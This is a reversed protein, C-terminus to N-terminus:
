RGKVEMLWASLRADLRTIFYSGGMVENVRDSLNFQEVLVNPVAVWGFTGGTNIVRTAVGELQFPQDNNTFVRFKAAITLNGAAAYEGCIMVVGPEVFRAQGKGLLNQAATFDHVYSNLMEETFRLAQVDGPGLRKAREIQAAFERSAVPSLPVPRDCPAPGVFIGGSLLAGIIIVGIVVFFIVLPKLAGLGGAATADGSAKPKELPAVPPMLVDLNHQTYAVATTEGLDRRIALAQRYLDIAHATNTETAHTGLQHLAWAESSRDGCARAAELVRNVIQAGVGWLGNLTLYPDIARGLVIVEQCRNHQAAWEIVSLYNGVEVACYSLDRPKNVLVDALLQTLLREEIPAADPLQRMWPRLGADVRLRPSNAHLLGLAQLHSIASSVQNAQLPPTIFIASTQQADRIPLRVGDITLYGGDINVREGGSTVTVEGSYLRAILNPDNSLAPLQAAITLVQQEIPSLVPQALAFARELGLDIPNTATTPAAQLTARAQELDLNSERIVDAARVIALPVDSLLACIADVVARNAEGIVEGSQAAFLELADTRPLPGLRVLRTQGSLGAPLAFIMSSQPCLDILTRYQDPSDLQVNDFLVLPRTNSLYTRATVENVKLPPQSQYLADFMRQIVDGLKLATGSEDVGEILVVGNPLAQATASNAAQRMLASKGLGDHGYISIPKNAAILQDLQGLEATRDFFDLPARPPQTKLPRLQVPPQDAQNIITGYNTNVEVTRNNVHIGGSVDGVVAVGGQSAAAGGTGAAAGGSTAIAGSGSQTLTQSM